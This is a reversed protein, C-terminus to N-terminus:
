PLEVAPAVGKHPVPTWGGGPLAPFSKRFEAGPRAVPVQRLFDAILYALQRRFGDADFPRVKECAKLEAQMFRLARSLVEAPDGVANNIHDIHWQQRRSSVTVNVGM